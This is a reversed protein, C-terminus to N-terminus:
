YFVNLLVCLQFYRFEISFDVFESVLVLVKKHIGIGIGIGQRRIEFIGIRIRIGFNKWNIGIIVGPKYNLTVKMESVSKVDDKHVLCEEFM